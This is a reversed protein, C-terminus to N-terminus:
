LRRNPLSQGEHRRRQSVGRTLGKTILVRPVAGSGEDEAVEDSGLRGGSLAVEVRNLERLVEAGDDCRTVRGSERVGGLGSVEGGVKRGFSSEVDQAVLSGADRPM